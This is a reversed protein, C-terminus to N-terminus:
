PELFLCSYYKQPANFGWSSLGRIRHLQFHPQWRRHKHLVSLTYTHLNWPQEPLLSWCQPWMKVTLTPAAVEWQYAQNWRGPSRCEWRKDTAWPILSHICITLLDANVLDSHCKGGILKFSPNRVWSKSKIRVRPLGYDWKNLVRLIYFKLDSIRLNWCNQETWYCDPHWTIPQPRPYLLYSYAMTEAGTFNMALPTPSSPSLLTRTHAGRRHEWLVREWSRDQCKGSQPNIETYKETKRSFFSQLWVSDSVLQTITPFDNGRNTEERQKREKNM